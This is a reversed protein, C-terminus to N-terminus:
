TISVSESLLQNEVRSCCGQEGLASPDSVCLLTNTGHSSLQSASPVPKEETGQEGQVIARRGHSVMYLMNCLVM